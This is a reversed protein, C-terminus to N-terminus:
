PGSVRIRASRSRRAGSRRARGGPRRRRAADETPASRTRCSSAARRARRTASAPWPRDHTSPTSTVASVARSAVLVPAVAHADDELGEVEQRREAGDVVDGHRHPVVPHRAPPALSSGGLQQALQAEAVPEAVSGAASDPPWCCRTAMARAIASSGGSSRASSGVAWRSWGPPLRRRNNRSRGRRATDDHHGRVVLPQHRDGVAHPATAGAGGSRCPQDTSRAAPSTSNQRPGAPRRPRSTSDPCTSSILRSGSPRSSTTRSAPGPLHNPSSPGNNPKGREAVARAVVAVTTVLQVGCSRRLRTFAVRESGQTSGLRQHHGPRPRDAREPVQQRRAPLPAEDAPCGLDLQEPSRQLRGFRRERHQVDMSWWADALRAQQVDIRRKGGIRARGHDTEVSALESGDGCARSLAKPCTSSTGSPSPAM